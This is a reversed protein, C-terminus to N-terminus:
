QNRLMNTKSLTGRVHLTRFSCLYQNKCPHHPRLNAVQHTQRWLSAREAPYMAHQFEMINLQIVHAYHATSFYCRMHKHWWKKSVFFFSWAKSIAGLLVIGNKPPYTQAVGLRWFMHAFFTAIVLIIGAFNVLVILCCSHAVKLAVFVHFVLVNTRAQWKCSPWMLWM